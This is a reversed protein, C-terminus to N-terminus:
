SHEQLINESLKYNKIFSSSERVQSNNMMNEKSQDMSVKLSSYPNM